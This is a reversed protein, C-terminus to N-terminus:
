ADCVWLRIQNVFPVGAILLPMVYESFLRTQFIVYAWFRTYVALFWLGSLQIDPKWDCIEIPLINDPDNYELTVVYRQHGNRPAVKQVILIRSSGARAIYTKLKEHYAPKSQLIRLGYKTLLRGVKELRARSFGLDGLDHWYSLYRWILYVFMGLLYPKPDFPGQLTLDNGFFSLKTFRGEHVQVFFLAISVLILNRRQRVFGTKIDESM